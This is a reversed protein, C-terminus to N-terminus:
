LYRFELASTSAYARAWTMLDHPALNLPTAAKILLSADGGEAFTAPGHYSYEQIATRVIDEMAGPVENVHTWQPMEHIVAIELPAVCRSRVWRFGRKLFSVQHITRRGMVRGSKDEDTYTLGIKALAVALQEHTISVFPSFSILNDDGFMIFCCNAELFDFDFNWSTRYSEAGGRDATLFDVVGYRSVINNVVSNAVTTLFGGSSQSGHWMYLITMFQIDVELEIDDEVLTTSLIESPNIGNDVFGTEFFDLVSPFTYVEGAKMVFKLTTVHYPQTVTLFLMKRVLNEEPTANYYYAEIAIMASNLMATTLSGDWNKFDGALIAEGTAHLTKAINNWDDGHPNVGVACGNRTHNMMMWRVFDGFYMRMLILLPMSSASILRTKGEAVKAKKRREDKLTDLYVEFIPNGSKLLGLQEELHALLSEYKAGSLDYEFAGFWDRKGKLKSSKYYPEGKKSDFGASTSKPIGPWVGPIGTIAEQISFIKPEPFPGFDSVRMIRKTYSRACDGLLQMNIPKSNLCYNNRANEMPKVWTGDPKKFDRM